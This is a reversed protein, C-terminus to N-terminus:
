RMILPAEPTQILELDIGEVPLALRDANGLDPCDTNGINLACEGIL